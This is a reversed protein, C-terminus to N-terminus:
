DLVEANIWDERGNGTELKKGERESLWHTNQPGHTEAIMKTMNNPIGGHM